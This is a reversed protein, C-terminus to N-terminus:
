VYEHSPPGTGAGFPEAPFEPPIDNEVDEADAPHAYHEAAFM